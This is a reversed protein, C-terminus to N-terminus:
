FRYVSKGVSVRARGGNRTLPGSYTIELICDDVCLTLNLSCNADAEPATGGGAGATAGYSALEATSHLNLKRAISKRHNGVTLVSMNLVMAIEKSTKGQGILELVATETPTLVSNTSEAAQKM